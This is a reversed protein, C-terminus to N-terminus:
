CPLMDKLIQLQTTYNLQISRAYEQLVLLNQDEESEAEVRRAQEMLNESRMYDQALRDLNEEVAALRLAFEAVSERDNVKALEYLVKLSAELQAQLLILQNDITVVQRKNNVAEATLRVADIEVIEKEILELQNLVARFRRSQERYKFGLEV